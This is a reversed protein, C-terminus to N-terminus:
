KVWCLKTRLENYEYHKILKDHQLRGVVICPDIGVSKAFKIISESSEFSGSIFAKYKSSPILTDVAFSDAQLELEDNNDIEIFTSKKGHLLIHGIEHFFTFWFIDSYAGRISLQILAKNPTLWKVAGHAFTKPLHQVLALAIGCSSCLDILKQSFYELQQSTLERFVPILSKLKKEDYLETKIKNASIEGIRLWAALAYTSANDKQKARFAAALTEPIYNLSAVGFFSRLNVVKEQGIKTPKILGLESIESYPILKAIEIEKDIRKEEQLRAKAEQYNAELNNWFSAPTGFVNELKLSTEATIPAKGKVIESITKQTLGIRKSLEVNTMGFSELFEELTEGPPIAINPNFGHLKNEM